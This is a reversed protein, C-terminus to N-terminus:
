EEEECIGEGYFSVRVDEFYNVSDLIKSRM